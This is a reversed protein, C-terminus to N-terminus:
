DGFSYVNGTCDKELWEMDRRWPIDNIQYPTVPLDHNILMRSKDMVLIGLEFNLMFWARGRKYGWAAKSLNHSGIYQYIPSGEPDLATYSKVHPGHRSRKIKDAKWRCLLPVIYTQKSHISDSYPLIFSSKYGGVFERVDDVSPYIISFNELNTMQGNTMNKVFHPTLWDGPTGGLSGISSVQAILRDIKPNGNEELYRSVLATGMNSMAFDNKTGPISFVLRDKIHTFNTKRLLKIWPLIIEEYKYINRYANTLYTDLDHIFHDNEQVTNTEKVESNCYYFLQTFNDWEESYLNGTAIILHLVNKADLFVNLKCHHSAYAKMPIIVHKVQPLQPPATIGGPTNRVLSEPIGEVVSIDDLGNPVDAFMDKVFAVEWQFTFFITKVPRIKKVVDRMSLCGPQRAISKSIVKSLYLGQKLPEDKPQISSKRKPPQGEGADNISRKM